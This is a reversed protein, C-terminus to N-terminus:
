LDLAEFHLLKPDTQRGVGMGLIFQDSGFQPNPDHDFVKRRRIRTLFINPDIGSPGLV